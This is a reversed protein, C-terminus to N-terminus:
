SSCELLFRQMFVSKDFTRARAKIIEPDFKYNEFELLLKELDDGLLGTQKNVVTETVGGKNLGIVPKGCAMAEVPVIGFDEEHFFILAKCHQYYGILIEYDVYKKGLVILPKGLKKCTNEIFERNKYKVPRGVYLFYDKEVPAPRIEQFDDFNVPPFVVDSQLHYYKDIRQSVTKSIAIYKDPRASAAKDWWKLYDFLPM